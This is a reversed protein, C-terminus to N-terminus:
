CLVRGELGCGQDREQKVKEGDGREYVTRCAGLELCGGGELGM